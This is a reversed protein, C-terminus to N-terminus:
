SRIDIDQQCAISQHSTMTNWERMRCSSVPACTVKTPILRVTSAFWMNASARGITQVSSAAWQAPLQASPAASLPASRVRLMAAPRQEKKLVVCPAKRMRISRRRRDVGFGVEGCAELTVLRMGTLIEDDRECAQFTRRRSIHCRWARIGANHGDSIELETRLRNRYRRIRRDGPVIGIARRMLDGDGARLRLAAHHNEFPLARTSRSTANKLM